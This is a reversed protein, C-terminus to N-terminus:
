EAATEAAAKIGANETALARLIPRRILPGLIAALPGEIEVTLTNLTKDVGAQVDHSATMTIGTGKTTWALRRNHELEAVTWIKARQAPQKVRVQCGPSLPRPGLIEVSTMTPTLDPLGEVDYTFLWVRDAPAAIEIHHQLRM